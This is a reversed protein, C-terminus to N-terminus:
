RDMGQEQEQRKLMESVQEQIIEEDAFHYEGNEEVYFTINYIGEFEIKYEDKVYSYVLDAFTVNFDYIDGLGKFMSNIDIEGSNELIYGKSSMKEKVVKIGDIVKDEKSQQDQVAEVTSSYSSSTDKLNNTHGNVVDCGQTGGIIGFTLGAAFLRKWFENSKDRNM